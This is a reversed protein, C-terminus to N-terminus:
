LDIVQMEMIMAVNSTIYRRTWTESLLFHDNVGMMRVCTPLGIETGAKSLKTRYQAIGAADALL